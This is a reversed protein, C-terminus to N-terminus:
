QDPESALQSTPQRDRLEDPEAGRGCCSLLSGCSVGTTSGDMENRHEQSQSAFTQLFASAKGSEALSMASGSCYQQTPRGPTFEAGVVSGCVARLFRVHAKQPRKTPEHPVGLLTSVNFEGNKWAIGVNRAWPLSDAEHRNAGTAKTSEVDPTGLAQM